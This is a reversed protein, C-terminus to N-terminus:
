FEFVVGKSHIKLAISEEKKNKLKGATWLAAGVAILAGGVSYGVALGTRFGRAENKTSDWHAYAKEWELENYPMNKSNTLAVAKQVEDTKKNWKVSYVGGVILSITGIGIGAIGSVRLLDRSKDANPIAPENIFTPPKVVVAPKLEVAIVLTSGATAEITQVFTEKGPEIVKVEHVGAEVSGHYPCPGVSTEDIFVLTKEGLCAVKIEAKPQQLDARVEVEAGSAAIVEVDLTKFRDKSIRVTHRGPDVFLPDSLPAIGVKKGDLFIESGEPAGVIRVKGVLNEIENIALLALERTKASGDTETELFRQFSTIADVYRHVAKNCMAINFLVWPRPRLSYSSEFAELAELYREESVFRKGEEIKAKAETEDDCLVINPTFLLVLAILGNIIILHM